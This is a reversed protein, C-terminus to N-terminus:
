RIGKTKIEIGREDIIRVIIKRSCYVPPKNKLTTNICCLGVSLDMHSPM